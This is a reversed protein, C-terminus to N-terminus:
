NIKFSICFLYFAHQYTIQNKCKRAMIVLQTQQIANKLKVSSCGVHGLVAMLHVLPNSQVQIGFMPKGDISAVKDKQRIIVNIVAYRM